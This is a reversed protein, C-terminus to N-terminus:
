FSYYAWTKGSVRLIGETSVYTAPRSTVAFRYGAGPEPLLPKAFPSPGALPGAGLEARPVLLEAATLDVIRRRDFGSQVTRAAVNRWDM